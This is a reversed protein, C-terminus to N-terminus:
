LLKTYRPPAVSRKILKALFLPAFSAMTMVLVKWAFEWTLFFRVDFEGPLLAVSIFYVILSLGESLYMAPHWTHIDLAIMLLENLILATFTISVIHLFEQEFLIIALIMLIGGQYTSIMLWKFFTKYNLDRGKTLDAYLEPYLLAMDATIDLDLVLSFVPAMTYLTTYGVALVGQYLAIPSFYLIASFVAQMIAIIFGRHIVFQSVKATRKYSNRGHWLLLRSLYKFQNISFDAALSAQRGEKGVIGIGVNAAQIMSVDNGGDGICAVRKKSYRQIMRAVEAKQQPTCRCCVVASLGCAVKFFYECLERDELYLQISMGDIVLVRDSETSHRPSRGAPMMPAVSPSYISGEMTISSTDGGCLADLYREATGYDSLGQIEHIIQNRSFLRSSTAICKATEVKDGTLMWIKIDANRLTELTTRVQDQLKDEVGTIGLLEVDNELYRSIVSQIVESRNHVSICAAEHEKQFEQYVDPTLRKRGVVLTRLGERAMNSCEEELWDNRQVVKKMAVDAGKQYFTIEGNEVNQVVIGMRKSESSFPFLHLIRYSLEQQGAKLRMFTRDRHVLVIDLIETWKVIAIEDPSSAQYSRRNTKEDKLPTVNHCIALAVTFVFIRQDIDRKVRSVSASAMEPSVSLGGRDMVNGIHRKLDDLSEPGFGMTGLHIRKMEMDNMTLTGTKDSLLYHIRGLEEPITSTRVITGPINKDHVIQSSCVTKAMDLNVRLSLPIITSFLVVFRILYVLWLGQFGKLSVMTLALLALILFLIKSKVNLEQDTIGDKTKPHSTNMAARTETGTYVVLGYASGSAVVTNMWMTNEVNLPVCRSTHSDDMYSFTGVFYHIDKHPSEAFAMAEVKFIDGDNTMKQTVPVALRLKWDIEGDLQDTRIFVTGSADHCKLLVLDDKHVVIVDGVKIESSPVLEVAGSPLVKGYQQSNVEKDRRYRQIDDFAEKTITITLVLTLPVINTFIYTVRFIPIFQTVCIILFYLNFFYKFQNFLVVPLFTIPHYKQNRIINPPYRPRRRRGLYEEENLLITRSPPPAKKFLRKWWPIQRPPRGRAGEVPRTPGSPSEGSELDLNTKSASKSASMLPERVTGIRKNHLPSMSSSVISTTESNTPAASSVTTQAPLNTNKLYNPIIFSPEKDGKLDSHDMFSLPWWSYCNKIWFHEFGKDIPPICFGFKLKL